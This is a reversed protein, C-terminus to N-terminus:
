IQSRANNHESGAEKAKKNWSIYGMIALVLLVVFQFSTFVAHKYFYLPISAINTLIWWIWNEIKKKAMLWMGTYASASAFSDAIPVVSNTYNKLILFLIGWCAAFFLLAQQWERQDSRTIELVHGDGNTKMRSWLIWGYISMVTYYLNLSAEAYLDWVFCLYTFLITSILGTPYVLINEKRSYVVSVIGFVVAVYELTPTNKLNEVFLQFFKEM